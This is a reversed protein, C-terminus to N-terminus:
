HSASRYLFRILSCEMLRQYTLINIESQRLTTVNSKKGFSLIEWSSDTQECLYGCTIFLFQPYSSACICLHKRIQWINEFLFYKPPFTPRQSAEGLRQINRCPKASFGCAALSKRLRRSVQECFDPIDLACFFVKARQRFNCCCDYTM